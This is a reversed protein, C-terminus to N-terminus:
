DFAELEASFGFRPHYDPHGVVIVLPEGRERCLTLGREVLRAEVDGGFALCNIERIAELDHPTEERISIM